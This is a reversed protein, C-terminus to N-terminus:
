KSDPIYVVAYEFDPCKSQGRNLNDIQFDLEEISQLILFTGICQPFALYLQKIQGRYNM